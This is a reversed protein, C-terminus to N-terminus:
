GPVSVRFTYAAGAIVYIPDPLIYERWESGTTGNSLLMLTGTSLQFGDAGEGQFVDITALNDLANGEADQAGPGVYFDIRDLIGNSSPAFSQWFIPDAGGSDSVLNGQNIKPQQGHAIDIVLTPLLCILIILSPLCFYQKSRIKSLREKKLIDPLSIQNKM